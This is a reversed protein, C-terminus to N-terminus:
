HPFRRDIFHNFSALAHQGAEFVEANFEFLDIYLGVEISALEHGSADNETSKLGKVEAMGTQDLFSNRMCVASLDHDGDTRSLRAPFRVVRPRGILTLRHNFCPRALFINM